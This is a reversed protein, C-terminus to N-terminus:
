EVWCCRCRHTARVPVSCEDFFSQGGGISVALCTQNMQSCFEDGTEGSPRGEYNACKLKPWESRCDEGICISKAKIQKQVRTKQDTDVETNAKTNGTDKAATSDSKVDSKQKMYPTVLAPKKEDMYDQSYVYVPIFVFFIILIFWKYAKM